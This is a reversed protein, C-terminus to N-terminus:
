CLDFLQPNFLVIHTLYILNSLFYYITHYKLYILQSSILTSRYTYCLNFLHENFPVTYNASIVYNSILYSRLNLM